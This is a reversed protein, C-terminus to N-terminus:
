WELEEPYNVNTLQVDRYDIDNEKAFERIDEEIDYYEKDLKILKRILAALLTNRKEPKGYIYEM